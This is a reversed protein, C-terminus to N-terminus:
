RGGQASNAPGTYFPRTDGPIRIGIVARGNDEFASVEGVLVGVNKVTFTTRGNSSLEAYVPSGQRTVPSVGDLKVSLLCRTIVTAFYRGLNDQGVGHILGAFPMEANLPVVKGNTISVLDGEVLDQHQVTECLGLLYHTSEKTAGVYVRANRRCGAGLAADREVGMGSRVNTMQM